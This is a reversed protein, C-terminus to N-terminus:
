KTPAGRKLQDESFREDAIGTDYKIDTSELNSESGTKLNTVTIQGYTQIGQIESISNAQLRKIVKGASDLLEQRVILNGTKWVWTRYKAFDLGKGNKPTSEVLWCDWKDVKQSGAVKHTDQGPDRNTLDEYTFDSGFFSQRSDGVVLKRVQGISPLYIWRQDDGTKNDWVMFAVNRMDSPESFFTVLKTVDKTEKRLSTLSRIRKSGSKPTITLKVTAVMDKGQPREEVQQMIVDATPADAYAVQTVLLLSVTVTLLSRM